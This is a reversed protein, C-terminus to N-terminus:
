EVVEETMETIGNTSRFVQRTTRGNEDTREVTREYQVIGFPTGTAVSYIVAALVSVAVLSLVAFGFPILSLIIIIAIIGGIVNKM